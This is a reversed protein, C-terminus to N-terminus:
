KLTCCNVCWNILCVPVLLKLNCNSKTSGSCTSLKLQTARVPPCSQVCMYPAQVKIQSVMSFPMNIADQWGSPRKWWMRAIIKTQSSRWVCFDLPLPATPSRNDTPPSAGCCISCPCRSQYKSLEVAVSTTASTSSHWDRHVRGLLISLKCGKPAETHGKQHNVCMHVFLQKKISVPISAITHAAVEDFTHVIWPWFWACRM